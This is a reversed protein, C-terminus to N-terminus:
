EVNEVEREATTDTARRAEAACTEAERATQAGRAAEAKRAAEAERAVEAERKAQSLRWPGQEAAFWPPEGRTDPPDPPNELIAILQACITETKRFAKGDRWRVEVDGVAMKESAEVTVAGEFDETLRAVERQLLPVASAHALVRVSPEYRLAPLVMRVLAETEAPGHRKCLEPLAAAFVEMMMKAFALAADDAIVAAEERMAALNGAVASLADAARAADRTAAERLGDRRGEARAAEVDEWTPVPPPAPPPPAAAQERAPADFDEQFLLAAGKPPPFARKM